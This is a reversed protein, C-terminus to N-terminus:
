FLYNCDVYLYIIQEFCGLGWGKIFTPVSFLFLFMIGKKALGLEWFTYICLQLNEWHIGGIRRLGKGDELRQRHYLGAHPNKKATHESLFLCCEWVEMSLEFGLAISCWGIKLADFQLKTGERNGFGAATSGEVRQVESVFPSLSSCLGLGSVGRVGYLALWLENGFTTHGGLWPRERLERGVSGLCLDTTM